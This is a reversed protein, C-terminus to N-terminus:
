PEVRHDDTQPPLVAPLFDTDRGGRKALALDLARRTAAHHRQEQALDHELQVIRQRMASLEEVPFM